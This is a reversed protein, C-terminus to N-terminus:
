GITTTSTISFYLTSIFDWSHRATAPLEDDHFSFGKSFAIKLVNEQEATLSMEKRVEKLQDSSYYTAYNDRALSLSLSGSNFTCFCM